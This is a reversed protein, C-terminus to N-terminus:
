EDKIERATLLLSSFCETLSTDHDNEFDHWAQSLEEVIWESAILRRWDELVKLLLDRVQVAKDVSFLTFVKTALRRLVREVGAIPRGYGLLVAQDLHWGLENCLRGVEYAATAASAAQPQSFSKPRDM